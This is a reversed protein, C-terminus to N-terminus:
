LYKKPNRFKQPAMLKLSQSRSEIGNVMPFTKLFFYKSSVEKM